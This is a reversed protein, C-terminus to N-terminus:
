RDPPKANPKMAAAKRAHKQFFEWMLDNASIDKTSPGLRDLPPERGPWTHGGGTIEILVVEAGDKGGGWTKRTVTM